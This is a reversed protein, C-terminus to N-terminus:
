ESLFDALLSAVTDPQELPAFHGANEIVELRAQPLLRLMDEHQSVPSWLDERGVMLLVPCRIVPLSQSADPRNTLAEIQRAHQATDCRLVMETLSLMLQPNSILNPEYVMGNLWREALAEMGNENAFQVIEQRMELEGEQLPHIGSDLLALCQVREQALRTMEMVVRAGMSHGALRLPGPHAALCDKAMQTLNDQTSLDAVAASEDLRDLLPQWVTADCLLGPVLLIQTM